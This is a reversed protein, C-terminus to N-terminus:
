TPRAYTCRRPLFFLPFPLLLLTLLYAGRAATYGVLATALLMGAHVYLWAWRNLSDWEGHLYEYFIRDISECVDPIM